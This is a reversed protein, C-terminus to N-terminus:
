KKLEGTMNTIPKVTSESEPIPNFNGAFNNNGYKSGNMNNNDYYVQQNQYNNQQQSSVMESM